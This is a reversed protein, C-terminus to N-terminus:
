INYDVHCKETLPKAQCTLIKKEKVEQDTLASHHEMKVKGSKLKATCTGCIGERCSFPVSLDKRLAADLISEDSLYSIEETKNRYTVTVTQAEKEPGEGVILSTEEQKISPPEEFAEELSYYKEYLIDSSSVGRALLVEEVVEKFGQPGCLYYSTPLGSDFAHKKLLTELSSETLRGKVGKWRRSPNSLVHVVEFRDGHTESLKDLLGKFIISEEDHNAYVLLSKEEKKSTLLDQIMSLIPTIGSGGAFFLHNAPTQTSLTFHGAPPLVLLTDGENIHDNLDNSVEGGNIRKVTIRLYEDVAPSSSLSYCRRSLHFHEMLRLTIFQGANYNFTKSYRKPVSLYFSTADKTEHVVKEVKLPYYLHKSLEKPNKFLHQAVHVPRDGMSLLRLIKRGFIKGILPLFFNRLKKLFPRKVGILLKSFRNQLRFIKEVEKRREKEFQLLDNNSVIAKEKKLANVIIPHAVAADQVALKNGQAGVPSAIHAADGILLLGERSWREAVAIKVDLFSCDDFSKLINPLLPKLKPDMNGLRQRFAEIGGRQIRPFEGKELILGVRIHRNEHPIYVLIGKQVLDIGPDYEAHFKEPIDFWILDFEQKTPKLSIGAKERVTSFRGDAGVVLRSKICQDENGITAMVGGASGESYHIDTVNVNGLYTFNPYQMGIEVLKKLLPGQELALAYHESINSQDFRLSFIERHNERIAFSDLKQHPLTLLDYLIEMEDFIQIASPQYAPGRFQKSFDTHKEILLVDFGSKALLISLVCGAPGAGVVIVDYHHQEM